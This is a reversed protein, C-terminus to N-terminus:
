ETSPRSVFHTCQLPLHFQLSLLLSSCPSTLLRPLSLAMILNQGLSGGLYFAVVNAGFGLPNKYDPRDAVLSWTSTQSGHQRLPYTLCASRVPRCIKATQACAAELVTDAETLDYPLQPSHQHGLGTNASLAVTIDRTQVAVQPMTSLQGQGEKTM